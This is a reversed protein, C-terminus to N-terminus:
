ELSEMIAELDPRLTQERGNREVTIAVDGRMMVDAFLAEVDSESELPRGNVAKVIDNVQLGLQEFLEANRGPRVRYGGSSVPMVSISDALREGGGTLAAVSDPLSAASVGDASRLGRIGPLQAATDADVRAPGNRRARTADDDMELAETRGNRVILVRRPELSEVRAGGPLEDGIRYVEDGGDSESIIAYGEEGAVVGRLKLSLRSTPAREVRALSVSRDGFLEWAFEGSRSTHPAPDPVPPMAAREVQPGDIVLWVLRVVLWVGVLALVAASMLALRGSWVSSILESM